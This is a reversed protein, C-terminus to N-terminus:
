NVRHMPRPYDPVFAPRGESKIEVNLHAISVLAQKAIESIADPPCGVRANVVMCINEAQELDPSEVTTSTISVKRKWTTADLFFKLHGIFIGKARLAQHFRSMLVGAATSADPGTLIISDDLWSLAAEGRAYRDYDITLSNRAQVPISTAVHLWQDVQDKNTASQFLLPKSPYEKSLIAEVLMLQASTATDIKNVVILDAEELQKRFIYRLDEHIFGSTGEMVSGILPADAIVSVTMQAAPMRELLPKAVTAVVDTCSGVSEAFVHTPGFKALKELKSWLGDFRCCFCGEGVFETPIGESRVWESDVQQAGQDNTIVAVREGRDRLLQAANLITTTKGSGLFGNVLHVIM